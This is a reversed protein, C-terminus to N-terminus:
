MRPMFRIKCETRGEAPCSSHREIGFLLYDTSVGYAEAMDVLVGIPAETEGRELRSISSKSLGLNAAAEVLTMGCTLRALGMRPGVTKSMEATRIRTTKQLM